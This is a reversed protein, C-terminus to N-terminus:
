NTARLDPGLKHGGNVKAVRAGEVASRGGDRAAAEGHGNVNLLFRLRAAIGRMANINM